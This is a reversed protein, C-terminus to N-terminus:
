LLIGYHHFLFHLQGIYKIILAHRKFTAKKLRVLIKLLKMRILKRKKTNLTGLYIRLFAFTGFPSKM